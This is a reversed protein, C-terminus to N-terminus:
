PTPIDMNEMEEPTFTPPPLFDMESIDFIEGSSADMYLYFESGLDFCESLSLGWMVPQGEILLFRELTMDGCFNDVSDIFRRVNKEQLYIDLAEQSDIQWDDETIPVDYRPILVKYEMIEKTLIGDQSISIDIGEFDKSPSDFYASIWLNTKQTHTDLRIFTLVSSLHADPQWKQAEALLAPYHERLSPITLQEESISTASSCGSLLLILLIITGFVQNYKKMQM